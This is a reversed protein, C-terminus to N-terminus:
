KNQLLYKLEDIQKQQEKIAEILLPVIKEYQVTLYNEGSISKNNGDNDFPALKVAEPLVEQVDQAFVGVLVEETNYNALEKAKENWNYTFGTLRNIKELPGDLIQINNKLRRDSAYAIVDAGASITGDTANPVVNVGLAGTNIRADGIVDLPYSPTSNAIGVNAGSFYFAAGSDSGFVYKGANDLGTYFRRTGAWSYGIYSWSSDTADLTLRQDATGSFIGAGSVHLTASPNATGIGVNGGGPNLALIKFEAGWDVAQVFGYGSQFGMTTVSGQSNNASWGGGASIAGAVELKEYPITTGIGVNSGSVTITEINNSYLRLRSGVGSQYGIYMDKDISSLSNRIVRLNAYQDATSLDLGEQAASGGIVLKATTPSSNAIGVNGTSNDYVFGNSGTVNSTSTWYSVQTSAGTGTVTGASGGTATLTGGSLSLGSGVIISSLLGTSNAGVIRDGSGALDDITVNGSGNITVKTSNNTGLFLSSNARQYIYANADSNGGLLGIDFGTSNSNNTTRISAAGSLHLQAGPSTTGIGVSGSTFYSNGNSSIRTTLSASNYLDLTGGNTSNEYLLAPFDSTTTARLLLGGLNNTASSKIEFRASPSTVGIGLNGNNDLTMRQNLTATAGIAVTQSGGTYWRFSGDFSLAARELAISTSSSFANTTGASPFVGYGIVVGGSSRNTGINLLHGPSYQDQLIITGEPSYNSGAVIIGNVDLKAQPTTTGIGVNGGQHNIAINRYASTDGAQLSGYQSGSVFSMIFYGNNANSAALRIGSDWSLGQNIAYISYTTGGADVTLKGNATTTGISVNRSTDIFLSSSEPTYARGNTSGDYGIQYGSAGANYPVGAFWRTNSGATTMHIGKGRFETNSKLEILTATYPASGGKNGEIYVTPTNDSNDQSEIRLMSNTSGTIHLKATPNTTDIGVNGNSGGITMRVSGNTEFVLDQADNTGLLATTGFSNGGQIFANSGTANIFSATLAFSSTVARSSSVAFSASTAFSSSLALSASTAFSSSITFSASTAFSATGFLSGTLNNITAPGIVNLSGTISVSGTFQHTNTLLSGFRTSGTVFDTSSTITQAIITQVTLTNSILANSATLSNRVVFSDASSATLANIAWSATGFLSGTFSNAIISGTVTLNGTFNGSGSIDLKYNGNTRKGVLLNGGVWTSTTSLNGIWTRNSENEGEGISNYGIFINNSGSINGTAGGAYGAQYGIATNRAGTSNEFLSEVGISVNQDAISNAYLSNTGIAINLSGVTNNLLASLGIGTNRNGTTNNILSLVGIATNSNGETNFVLASTGVATNYYGLTNNSLAGVGLSTNFSGYEPIGPDNTNSNLGGGGIFINQGSTDVGYYSSITYSQGNTNITLTGTKASGSVDLKYAPSTTGIGVNGTGNTLLVTHGNTSENALTLTTTNASGFGFYGKRGASTIPYFEIYSHDTGYLKLTSGNARIAADGNVDLKSAPTTTGIGVSGGSLITMRVTGNTELALDQADNTGLL